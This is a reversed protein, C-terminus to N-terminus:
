WGKVMREYNTGIEVQSEGMTDNTTVETVYYMGDIYADSNYMIVKADEPCKSLKRILQKVTM